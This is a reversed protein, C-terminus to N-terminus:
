ESVLYYGTLNAQGCTLAPEGEEALRWTGTAPDYVQYTTNRNTWTKTKKSYEHVLARNNQPTAFCVSAIVHEPDPAEDVTKGDERHTILCTGALFHPYNPDLKNDNHFRSIYNVSITDGPNLKEV